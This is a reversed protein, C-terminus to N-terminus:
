ANLSMLLAGIVAMFNGAMHVIIAFANNSYKEQYYGAILGLISTFIVTKIIFFVGVGAFILVLHALGFTFGSIIVAISVQHKFIRIGKEKLPSLINLLFGRFLIEEAISAYIFIFVLVQLPSMIKFAPHPELNGGMVKTLVSLSINIVISALLGFLIPRLIMKFKPLAIKYNVSKSLLIIVGISGLLMVSHTVFYPPLADPWISMKSGIFNALVFIAITVILGYIIQNNNKM